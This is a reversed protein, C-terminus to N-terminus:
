LPVATRWPVYRHSTNLPTWQRRNLYHLSSRTGTFQCQLATANFEAARDSPDCDNVLENPISISANQLKPLVVGCFHEPAPKWGTWGYDTPMDAATSKFQKLAISKGGLVGVTLIQAGKPAIISGNLTGVNSVPVDSSGQVDQCLGIALSLCLVLLQAIM